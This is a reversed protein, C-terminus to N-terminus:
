VFDCMITYTLLCTFYKVRLAGLNTTKFIINELKWYLIFIDLITNSVAFKPANRIFHGHKVHKDLVSFIGWYHDPTYAESIDLQKLIYCSCMRCSMIVDDPPFARRTVPGKHPSNVPWRTAKINRQDAGSCVTSYVISVGATQSVMAGMIVDSYHPSDHEQSCLVLRM